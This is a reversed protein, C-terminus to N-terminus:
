RPGPGCRASPQSCSRMRQRSASRTHPAVQSPPMRRHGSADESEVDGAPRTATDPALPAPPVTDRPPSNRARPRRRRPLRRPRPLRFRFRPCRSPLAPLAWGVEIDKRPTRLYLVVDYGGGVAAALRAIPATLAFRVGGGEHTLRAEAGDAPASDRRLEAYYPQRVASAAHVPEHATLGLALGSADWRLPEVDFLAPDYDVFM